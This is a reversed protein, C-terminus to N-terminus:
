GQISSREEIHFIKDRGPLDRRTGFIEGAQMSSKGERYFINKGEVCSIRERRLCDEEVKVLM